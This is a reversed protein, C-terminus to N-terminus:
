TRRNNCAPATLVRSASSMCQQTAFQCTETHLAVNVEELFAEIHQLTQDGQLDAMKCRVFPVADPVVNRFHPHESLMIANILM